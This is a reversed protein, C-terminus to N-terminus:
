PITEEIETRALVLAWTEATNRNEFVGDCFRRDKRDWVAWGKPTAIVNLRDPQNPETFYIVAGSYERLGDELKNFYRVLGDSEYHVDFTWGTPVNKSVYIEVDGEVAADYGATIRDQEEFHERVYAPMDEEDEEDEEDGPAIIADTDNGLALLANAVTMIENPMMTRFAYEVAGTHLQAGTRAEALALLLRGAADADDPTITVTTEITM